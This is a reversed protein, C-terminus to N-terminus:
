QFRSSPGYIQEIVKRVLQNSALRMHLDVTPTIVGDLDFLFADYDDIM